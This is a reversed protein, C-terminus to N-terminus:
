DKSSAAPPALTSCWFKDNAAPAAKILETIQRGSLAVSQRVAPDSLDASQADCTLFYFDGDPGGFNVGHGALYVVLIDTSKAHGTRIAQFAHLLNDRTPRQRPFTQPANGADTSLLTLHVHDPGFLRKAGIDAAKAFDEADKAAFRLRLSDGRYTSAGAVVIWIQPPDSTAPAPSRYSFKLGRSRLYGEANYAEIEIENPQGPVLLPHDPPLPIQLHLTAANPDAAPGRADAAIEKGNIRVAVRGIGGGRNSLAIHIVPDNPQPPSVTVAPFMKPDAFNEVDRLPERSFGLKKALLGPEYYREKLQVLAIPEKGIVWHLGEIAGAHAADFRGRSDVVAWDGNVFSVLSCLEEGTAADWLGTTGGPCGTLLHKGDASLAVSDVGGWQGAFTRIEKGSAADWIRTTGDACGTVM